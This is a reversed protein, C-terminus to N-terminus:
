HGYKLLAGGMVIFAVGIWRAPSSVDHFVLVGIVFTCSAGIGSWVAYATGIPITKQAIYLFLGSLAMTVVAVVIWSLKYLSIEAMKLGIPWGVEFFAAILLYIWAM